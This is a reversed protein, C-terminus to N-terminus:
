LPIRLLQGALIRNPDQLRNAVAIKQVSSGTGRAIASLTDGRVVQHLSYGQM